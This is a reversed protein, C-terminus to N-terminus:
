KMMIIKKVALKASEAAAKEVCYNKFQIWVSNPDSHWKRTIGKVLCKMELRVYAHFYKDESEEKLAWNHGLTKMTYCAASSIQGHEMRKSWKYWPGLGHELNKAVLAVAQKSKEKALAYKEKEFADM